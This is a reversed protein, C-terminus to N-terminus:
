RPWSGVFGVLSGVYDTQWLLLVCAARRSRIELAHLKSSVLPSQQQTNQNKKKICSSHIIRFNTNFYLLGQIALPIKFLFLLVLPTM